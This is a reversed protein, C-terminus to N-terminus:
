PTQLNEFKISPTTIYCWLTFGEQEVSYTYYLCSWLFNRGKEWHLVNMLNQLSRERRIMWPWSCIFLLCVHFFKEHCTGEERQKMVSTPLMFAPCFSCLIWTESSFSPANYGWLSIGDVCFVWLLLLTMKSPM